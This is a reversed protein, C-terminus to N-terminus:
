FKLVNIINILCINKIKVILSKVLINVNYISDIKLINRLYIEFIHIEYLDNNKILEIDRM